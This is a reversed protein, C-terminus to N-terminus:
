LRVASLMYNMSRDAAAVFDGHAPRFVVGTADLVRFGRRRLLRALASPALFRRWDHTGEPLWGLVREAALIGLFYARATRNLTSMVLLGGPRVIDALEAIFLDPDPTHEIVEMALVIDFLEGAEALAEVTTTRYDILLDGLGAHTSAIEISRPSPDIGTVTAGLRAMPESLLGAGCGIDALRLGGFPRLSAADGTDLVARAQERIYGIRVPSLLHLPRMPGKPDWVQEALAEFKAVEDRDVLGAPPAATEADGIRASQQKSM